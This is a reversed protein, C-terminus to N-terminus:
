QSFNTKGLRSQRLDAQDLNVGCLYVNHLDVERLNVKQFSREGQAYRELIAEITIATPKLYRLLSKEQFSTREAM